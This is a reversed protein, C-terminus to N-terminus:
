LYTAHLQMSPGNFYLIFSFKFTGALACQPRTRKGKPVLYAVRRIGKIGRGRKAGLIIEVRM